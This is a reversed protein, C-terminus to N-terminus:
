GILLEKVQSLECYDKFQAPSFIAELQSDLEESLKQWSRTIQDPTERATLLSKMRREQDRQFVRELYMTQIWSLELTSTLMEIYIAQWQVLIRLEFELRATRLVQKQRGTLGSIPTSEFEGRQHRVRTWLSQYDLQEKDLSRDLTALLQLNQQRLIPQLIKLDKNTPHFRHKVLLEVSATEFLSDDQGLAETTFGSFLLVCGIRCVLVFVNISRKM